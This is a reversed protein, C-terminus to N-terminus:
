VHILLKKIVGLSNNSSGDDIVIIEFHKYTQNLVSQLTDYIYNAKNYLPVIVSFFSNM